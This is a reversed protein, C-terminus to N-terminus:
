VGSNRKLSGSSIGSSGSFRARERSQLGKVKATANTDLSFENLLADETSLQGQEIEALRATDKFVTAAQAYRENLLKANLDGTGATANAISEATGATATLGYGKAAAGALAANAKLNISETSGKINLAQAVLDSPQIDYYQQFQTLVDPNTNNVIRSADEVRQKVENVSLSYDGVLKAIAAQEAKSGADGVYSSLGADRFVQRYQSELQLYQAENQVDTIGKSRLNVLGAFRTKYSQTDRIKETLVGANTGWQTVLSDVDGALDGLGYQALMDRLFASATQRAEVQQAEYLQRYYDSGSTSPAPDVNYTASPAPAGYEIAPEDRVGQDVSTTTGGTVAGSSM